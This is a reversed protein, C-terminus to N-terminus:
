RGATDARVPTDRSSGDEAPMAAGYLTPAPQGTRDIALDLFAVSLRRRHVDGPAVTGDLSRLTPEHEGAAVRFRVEVDTPAEQIRLTRTMVGDIVVALRRPVM